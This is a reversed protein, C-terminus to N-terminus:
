DEAPRSTMAPLPSLRMLRKKVPDVALSFGELTYAGLLTQDKGEGAACITHITQGALRMVVEYRERTVREGNALEFEVSDMPEVGLERLIRGPVWTYFSGTDVLAYM